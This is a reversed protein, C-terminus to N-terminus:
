TTDNLHWIISSTICCWPTSFLVCPMSGHIYQIYWKSLTVSAGGRPLHGITRRKVTMWQVVEEPWVTWWGLHSLTRLVNQLLPITTHLGGKPTSLRLIKWSSRPMNESQPVIESWTPLLSITCTGCVVNSYSFYTVGGALTLSVQLEYEWFPRMAWYWGKRRHLHLDLVSKCVKRGNTSTCWSNMKFGSILPIWLLLIYLTSYVM